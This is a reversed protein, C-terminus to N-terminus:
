LTVVPGDDKAEKDRKIWASTAARPSSMGTRENGQRREPYVSKAARPCFFRVSAEAPTTTERSNLKMGSNPTKLKPNQTM